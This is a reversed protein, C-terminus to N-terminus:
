KKNHKFLINSNFYNSYRIEAKQIFSSDRNINKTPNFKNSTLSKEENEFFETVDSM